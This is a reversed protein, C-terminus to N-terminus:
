NPNEFRCNDFTEPNRYEEGNRRVPNVFLRKFVIYRDALSRWLKDFFYAEGNVQLRNPSYIYLVKLVVFTCFCKKM